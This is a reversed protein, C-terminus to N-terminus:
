GKAPIPDIRVRVLCLKARRTGINTGLTYSLPEEPAMGFGPLSAITEFFLPMLHKKERHMVRFSIRNLEDPSGHLMITPSEKGITGTEFFLTLM